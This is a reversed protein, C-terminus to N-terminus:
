KVAPLASPSGAASVTKSGLSDRKFAQLEKLALSARFQEAFQDAFKHIMEVLVKPIAPKGSIRDEKGERNVARLTERSPLALLSLDREIGEFDSQRGESLAGKGRNVMEELRAQLMDPPSVLIVGDSFHAMLVSGDDLAVLSRMSGSNTPTGDPLPLYTHDLPYEDHGVNGYFLSITEDHIRLVADNCGVLVSGDPLVALPGPNALRGPHEAGEGTGVFETVSGNKHVRLIRGAYQNGGIDLGVNDAILISGDALEALGGPDTLQTHPGSSHDITTGREGTGAFVSIAKGRVRVVRSAAADAILVSGDKLELIGAASVPNLNEAHASAPRIMPTGPGVFLSVTPEGAKPTTRIRFVGSDGAILVSQNQLVGLQMPSFLQLKRPAEVDFAKPRSDIDFSHFRGNGAFESFVGDQLRFVRGLASDSIYISRNLVAIASVSLKETRPLAPYGLPNPGEIQVQTAVISRRGFAQAVPAAAIFVLLGACLGCSRKPCLFM